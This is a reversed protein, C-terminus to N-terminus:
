GHSGDQRDSREPRREQRHEDRPHPPIAKPRFIAELTLSLILMLLIVGGIFAFGMLHELLNALLISM